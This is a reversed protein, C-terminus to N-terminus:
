SQKFRVYFITPRRCYGERQPTHMRSRFSANRAKGEVTYVVPDSPKSALYIEKEENDLPMIYDNAYRRAESALPTLFLGPSRPFWESLQVDRLRVVRRARVRETLLAQWFAETTPFETLGLESPQVAPLALSSTELQGQVADPGDGYDAHRQIGVQDQQEWGVQSGHDDM